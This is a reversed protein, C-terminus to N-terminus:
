KRPRLDVTIALTDNSTFKYSCAGCTYATAVAVFDGPSAFTHSVTILDNSQPALWEFKGDGYDISVNKVTGSTRLTFEVSDNRYFSANGAVPSLIEITNTPISCCKRTKNLDCDSRSLVNDDQECYSGCGPAYDMRCTSTKYLGFLWSSQCSALSYGDPCSPCFLWGELVVSTQCSFSASPIRCPLAAIPLDGCGRPVTSNGCASCIQQSYQAFALASVAILLFMALKAM